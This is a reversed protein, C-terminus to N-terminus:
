WWKIVGKVQLINVVIVKYLYFLFRVYVAIRIPTPFLGSIFSVFSSVASFDFNPFSYANLQQIFSTLLSLFQYLKNLFEPTLQSM